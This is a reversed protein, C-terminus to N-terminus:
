DQELSDEQGDPISRKYNLDGLILKSNCLRSLNRVSISENDGFVINNNTNCVRDAESLDHEDAEDHSIEKNSLYEIVKSALELYEYASKARAFIRNEAEAPDRPEDEDLDVGVPFVTEIERQISMRFGDTEWMVDLLYDLSVIWKSGSVTANPINDNEGLAVHNKKTIGEETLLENLDAATM